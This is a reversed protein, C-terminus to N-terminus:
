YGSPSLYVERGKERTWKYVINKKVDSFLFMKHNEIWLPGESWLFGDALIEARATKSVISSFQPDIQKLSILPKAAQAYGASMHGTLIGIMCLLRNLSTIM